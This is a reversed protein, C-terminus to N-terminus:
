AVARGKALQRIWTRNTSLAQLIDESLPQPEGCIQSALLEGLLPATTLGRSGLGAILFLNPYCAAKEITERRRLQNYLNAYQRKQKAFDPVAGAMPIRDRFAARIGVKGQYRKIDIDQAWCASVNQQIKALNQRKESESM